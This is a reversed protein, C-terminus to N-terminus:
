LGYRYSRSWISFFKKYLFPQNRKEGFDKLISKESESLELEYLKLFAAAMTFYDKLYDTDFFLGMLNKKIKSLLTGQKNTEYTVNSGHQRYNILPRPIYTQKGISFAVLGLWADHMYAEKPTQLFYPRMSSNFMITCGTIFNGYLLSGLSEKEPRINLVRMFSPSILQLDRDVLALDTYVLAPVAADFNNLAKAQLQLKDSHWVDDQDALAIFNTSSCFSVAQKFNEIVGLQRENIYVKILDSKAYRALIAATGDTSCDDCIVIEEPPLTQSLLSDLQAEIYKAGNYTTMAISIGVSNINEM